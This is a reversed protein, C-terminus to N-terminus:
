RRRRERFSVSKLQPHNSTKLELTAWGVPIHFMLRLPIGTECDMWLELRGNSVLSGEYEASPEINWARREGFIASDFSVEGLMKFYISYVGKSAFVYFQQDLEKPDRYEFHRLYYIMSFPDQLSDVGDPINFEDLNASEHASHNQKSRKVKSSEYDMEVIEEIHRRGQRADKHYRLSSFPQEQVETTIVDRVKHIMSWFGNTEANLQFKLHGNPLRHTKMRIEGAPVGTWKVTYVLEEGDLFRSEGFLHSSLGTTLILLTFLLIKM